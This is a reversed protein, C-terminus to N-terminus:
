CLNPKNRIIQIRKIMYKGNYKSYSSYKFKV